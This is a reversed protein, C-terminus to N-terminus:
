VLFRRLLDRASAGRLRPWPARLYVRPLSFELPSRPGAPTVVRDAVVSRSSSCGQSRPTAIRRSRPFEAAPPRRCRQSPSAPSSGARGAAPPLGQLPFRLRPQPIFCARSARPPALRRSRSFRQPRFMTPRPYARRAHVGRTSTAFLSSVGRSSSSRALARASSQGFSSQLRVFSVLPHVRSRLFFPAPVPPVGDRDTPFSSADIPIQTVWCGLYV